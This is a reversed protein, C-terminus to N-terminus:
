KEVPIPVSGTKLWTNVTQRIPPGPSGSGYAYENVSLPNDINRTYSFPVVDGQHQAYLVITDYSRETKTVQGSDNLTTTVRIPLAWDNNLDAYDTQITKLLTNEGQYIYTTTERSSFAFACGCTSSQYGFSHRTRNGLPDRVDLYQNNSITGNVTPTYTTTDETACAGTASSCLHRATLERFDAATSATGTFGWWFQFAAYDYRAYGGTPYTIKTIEGFNNYAFTYTLLNPLTITSLLSATWSGPSQVTQPTQFTPAMAVNANAFTISQTSGNSDKYSISSLPNHPASGWAFTVVRGVTDTISTVQNGHSEDTSAITIENGNTDEIQSAVTTFTSGDIAAPISFHVITGEKTFLKFDSTNTTDLRLFTADDSDTVNLDDAPVPGPPNGGQDFCQVRNGFFHKSGDGLTIIFDGYCYLATQYAFPYIPVAQLVPVNLRWGFGQNTDVISPIRPQYRWYYNYPANPSYHNLVFIKSDYELGLDLNHGNRGPLSLLLIQLNLNGNGYGINERVGGYPAYPILGTANGANIQPVEQAHTSSGVTLLAGLSLMFLRLARSM